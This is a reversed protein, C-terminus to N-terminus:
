LECAKCCSDAGLAVGRGMTAGFGETFPPGDFWLVTMRAGNTSMPHMGRRQRGRVVYQGRSPCTSRHRDEHHAEAEAAEGLEATLARHPAERVTATPARTKCTPSNPPLETGSALVTQM